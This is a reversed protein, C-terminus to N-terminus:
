LCPFPVCQGTTPVCSHDTICKTKRVLPPPLPFLFFSLALARQRQVKRVGKWSQRVDKSARLRDGGSERETGRSGHGVQVWAWPVLNSVAQAANESQAPRITRSFILPHFLLCGFFYPCKDGPRASVHEDSFGGWRPMTAIAPRLAEPAEDKAHAESGETPGRLRCVGLCVMRVQPWMRQLCRSQPACGPQTLRRGTSSIDVTAM